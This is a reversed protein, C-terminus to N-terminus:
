SACADNRRLDSDMPDYGYILEDYRRLGTDLLLVIMPPNHNRAEAKADQTARSLQEQM